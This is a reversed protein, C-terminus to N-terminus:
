CGPVAVELVLLGPADRRELHRGVRLSVLRDIRAFPGAERAAGLIATLDPDVGAGAAVLTGSSGEAACLGPPGELYYRGVRAMVPGIEGPVYPIGLRENRAGLHFWM